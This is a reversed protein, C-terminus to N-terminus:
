FLTLATHPDFFNCSNHFYNWHLNGIEEQITSFESEHEDVKGALIKCFIFVVKFITVQTVEEDFSHISNLLKEIEKWVRLQNFLQILATILGSFACMDYASILVLSSTSQNQDKLLTFISCIILFSASCFVWVRDFIKVKFNGLYPRGVVSPLFLGFIKLYIFLPMVSTFINQIKKSFM